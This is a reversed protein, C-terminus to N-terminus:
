ARGYIETMSLLETKHCPELQDPGLKWEWNGHQTGPLNMRGEAGLDLLDQVPFISVDAVSMMALKILERSINVESIDKGIYRSVREKIEQTAENLFWGKATNNDHTGTYVLCNRYLNHPAYPNTPLDDGFAFLLVKMGPFGTQRIIDVVDSTIFGLDEAIIPLEPIEKKITEFFELGPGEVWQGNVANEEAASIEWYAVFGRFHDIRIFDYLRLNHKIRDIWWKYGGEKLVDWRYVPNGWLQGTASFYDPPVGAVTIPRKEHDLYFLGPNVWVDASDHVVYIPIDGIIKVGKHNCYQRISMWQKHLIYQTIRIKLMTEQFQCKAEEIADKKRDRLDETWEHWPKGEFHDKLAKYLCYDDLWQINEHCFIDFGERDSGFDFVKLMESVVFDKYRYASPYDIRGHPFERTQDLTRKELLGDQLLTEPSIFLPNIAFASDSHYPSNRNIPDTPTLPLIQWYRQGAEHLFDIFLGASTGFDGIGFRSPLSSIHLLLGSGRSLTGHQYHYNNTM